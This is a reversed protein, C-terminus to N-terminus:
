LVLLMAFMGVGMALRCAQPLPGGRDGLVSTGLTGPAGPSGPHGPVTLLRSGSWLAYCGFYVLLLGTVAPRGMPMAMGAHQQPAGGMALAMYAMAAAGVAHHLRHARRGGAGRGAAAGLSGACLLGFLVVWLAAPLRDGLAIMAATGLGMAAEMADSGRGRDPAAGTTRRLRLLCIGGTGATLLALLWSLVAPGDM